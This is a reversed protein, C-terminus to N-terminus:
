LMEAALLDSFIRFLDPDVAKGADGRMIELAEERTYAPRYSRTTTLADYIDAVCLIRATLPIDTGALRDPYGRGDWREHHSRVMPRVDFPFDLEAVIDDGVTAHSKMLEWEREDLKGPKNLVEVPVATKGVDHLFGGMRIWTLDRGSFGVAEALATAYAAVRKCHGATYSDKSEISEGWTAVVELYSGELRDLRRDIDLLERKASLHTFLRQARNLRKLADRNKGNILSVLAREHEAEAELLTNGSKQAMELVTDLHAEALQLKGSERYIVGYAKYTEGLGWPSELKGFIEFAQDCCARAADYAELKVFLEVRNVQVTGVMDPDRRHEALALARTFCGDAETYRELDVYAIAINNLVWVMGQDDDLNEFGKLASNYNDLAAQLDGRINALAGLNQCTMAALRRNGIQEALRQAEYFLEEAEPLRGLVQLCAARSNLARAVNELEGGARAVALSEDYLAEGDKFEGRTCHVQGMWRLLEASPADTERAYELAGAYFTLAEDYRGSRHAERASDILLDLSQAIM